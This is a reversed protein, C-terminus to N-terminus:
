KVLESILPIIRWIYLWIALFNGTMFFDRGARNMKMKLDVALEYEPSHDAKSLMEFYGNGKGVCMIFSMILMLHVLKFRYGKITLSLDWLYRSFRRLIFHPAFPFLLLMLILASIPMVVTAIIFAITVM